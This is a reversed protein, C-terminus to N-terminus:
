GATRGSRHVPGPRPHRVAGLRGDIRRRVVTTGGAIETTVAVVLPVAERAEGVELHAAVGVAFADVEANWVAGVHVAVVVSHSVPLPAVEHRAPRKTSIRPDPVTPGPTPPPVVPVLAIPIWSMWHGRHVLRPSFPLRSSLRPEEKEGRAPEQPLVKTRDELGMSHGKHLTAPLTVNPREPDGPVLPIPGDIDRRETIRRRSRLRPWLTTSNASTRGIRNSSSAAVM